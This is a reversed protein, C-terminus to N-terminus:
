RDEGPDEIQSEGILFVLYEAIGSFHVTYEGHAEELSFRWQPIGDNDMIWLRLLYARYVQAAEEM